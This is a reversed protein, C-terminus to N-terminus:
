GCYRNKRWHVNSKWSICYDWSQLIARRKRQTSTRHFIAQLEDFLGTYKLKNPNTIGKGEMRRNWDIVEAAGVLVKKPDGVVFLAHVM